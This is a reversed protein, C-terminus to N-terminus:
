ECIDDGNNRLPCPPALPEDSDFDISTDKTNDPEGACVCGEESTRLCSCRNGLLSM